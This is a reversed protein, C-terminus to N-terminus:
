SFTALVNKIAVSLLPRAQRIAEIYGKAFLFLGIATLIPILIKVM